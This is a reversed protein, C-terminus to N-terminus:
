FHFPLPPPFSIWEATQGVTRLTQILARSFCRTPHFGPFHDSVRQWSEYVALVVSQVKILLVFVSFIVDWTSPAPLNQWRVRVSIKSKRYSCHCIYFWILMLLSMLKSTMICWGLLSSMCHSAKYLCEIQRFLCISEHCVSLAVIDQFPQSLM